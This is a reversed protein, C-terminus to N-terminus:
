HCYFSSKDVVLQGYNPVWTLWKDNSEQCILKAEDSAYPSPKEVLTVWTDRTYTIQCVPNWAVPANPRGEVTVSGVALPTQVAM